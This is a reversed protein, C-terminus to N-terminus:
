ISGNSAESGFASAETGNWGMGDWGTRMREYDRQVLVVGERGRERRTRRARASKRGCFYKADRGPRSRDIADDFFVDYKRACLCPCESTTANKSSSSRRSSAAAAAPPPLSPSANLVGGALFFPAFAFAFAAPVGNLRTRYVPGWVVANAIHVGIRLSKARRM